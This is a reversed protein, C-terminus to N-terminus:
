FKSLYIKLRKVKLIIGSAYLKPRNQNGFLLTRFHFQLKKYLAIYFKRLRQPEKKPLAVDLAFNKKKKKLLM